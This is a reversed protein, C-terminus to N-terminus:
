QNRPEGAESQKRGPHHARRRMRELMVSAPEDDPDQAVLEGRFAKALISQTLKDVHAKAKAYRAEIQDALTFLSEVRRVIEHQEPLPALAFPQAKIDSGSVGNQGASSKSKAVIRDHVAPAQFFIEAYGPRIFTHDFRVRMLKDPYLMKATGLRRVMGCVGLLEISGNYRTFLLDNDQLSYRPLFDESNPMYRTDALDVQGPRAASIRLIPTGPPTISPRLPVGNRLEGIVSGFRVWTWTEPVVMDVTEPEFVEVKVSEAGSTSSNRRAVARAVNIKQILGSASESNRNQERWDETLRGSCAATLVAQRFRKLLAPVRALRERASGVKSLLAELKAVIRRQEKWPALRVPILAANRSSIEPFTTGSALEEALPKAFKLWFYIYEPSVGEGCVFSKFGQNTSIENAAVAVYGIPARSSFLVAGKPMLKASSNEFGQRTLFRRGRSISISRHDSLDAPAIWHIGRNESFNEPIHSSPTGGGVVNAIQGIPCEIWGPPLADRV